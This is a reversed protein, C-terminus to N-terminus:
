SDPRFGPLELVIRAGGSVAAEAHVTGGHAEAIARVIALGLGSGGSDRGRGRDVRHFRDFVRTREATPVGPGDDEVWLRLWDREGPACGIAVLGGAATHEVANRVLNAIAQTLQDPDANLTGSALEALEFRRPATNRWRELLDSLFPGLEITERELFRPEDTRALLLLAETLRTMRDVETQVLRQVRSVDEPTPATQRALVELQGRIATLPTRLEHSADSVFARQRAFADELRDLMHDFADSLVRMEGPPGGGEMRPSLDGGDVRAAIRSMRRLPRSFGAAIASCALLAGLLTLSGALAFAREVGDQARAVAALPEGVGVRADTGAVNRVLLRLPGVDPVEVTSYGPPSSLLLAGSRREASALSASDDVDRAAAGLLEPENTQPGRHPEQVFLLRSTARFPQSSVYLRAAPQISAPPAIRRAFAAADGRLDRDIQRRFEAGTGRYVAVFTIAFAAVLVTGVALTLRWRLSRPRISGRM